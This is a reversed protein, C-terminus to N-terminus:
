TGFRSGSDFHRITLMMMPLTAVATPTMANVLRYGCIV